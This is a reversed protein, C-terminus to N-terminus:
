KILKKDLYTKIIDLDKTVYFEKGYHILFAKDYSDYEIEDTNDLNIYIKNHELLEGNMYHHQTILVWYAFFFLYKKM